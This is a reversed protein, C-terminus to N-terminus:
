ERRWTLEVLKFKDSPHERLNSYLTHFESYREREKNIEHVGIRIKIGM